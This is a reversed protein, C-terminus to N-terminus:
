QGSIQEIQQEAFAGCFQFITFCILM